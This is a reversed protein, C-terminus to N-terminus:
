CRTVLRLWIPIGVAAAVNRQHQPLFVRRNREICLEMQEINDAVGVSVHRTKVNIRRSVGASCQTDANLEFLIIMHTNCPKSALLAKEDHM